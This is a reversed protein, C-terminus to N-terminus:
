LQYNMKSPYIEWVTNVYIVEPIKFDLNTFMPVNFLESILEETLAYQSKKNLLITKGVKHKRLKRIVDFYSVGFRRAVEEASFFTQAVM